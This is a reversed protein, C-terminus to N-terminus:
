GINNECTSIITVHEVDVIDTLKIPTIKKLPNYYSTWTDDQKKVILKPQQHLDYDMPAKVKKKINNLVAQLLQQNLIFSDSDKDFEIGDIRMIAGDNYFVHNRTIVGLKIGLVITDHYSKSYRKNMKWLKTCLEVYDFIMTSDDFPRSNENETISSTIMNNYTMYEADNDSYINKHEKLFDMFVRVASIPDDPILVRIPSSTQKKRFNLYSDKFMFGKPFRGKSADLLLEKWFDDNTYEICEEFIKNVVQKNRGRRKVSGNTTNTSSNSFNTTTNASTTSGRTFSSYSSSSFQGSM